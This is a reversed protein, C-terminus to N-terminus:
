DTTPLPVGILTPMALPMAHLIPVAMTTLHVAPILRGAPGCLRHTPCNSLSPVQLAALAGAVYTTRNKPSM